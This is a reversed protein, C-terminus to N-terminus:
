MRTFIISQAVGSLRDVGFIRLRNNDLIELPFAYNLQEPMLLIRLVLYNGAVSYTSIVAEWNDEVWRGTGGEWLTLTIVRHGDTARWTGVPDFGRNSGLGFDCGTLALGSALVLAILLAIAEWRTKKMVKM